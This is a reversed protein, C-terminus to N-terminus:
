FSMLHDNLWIISTVLKWVLRSGKVRPLTIFETKVTVYSMLGYVVARHPPECPGILVRVGGKEKRSRGETPGM